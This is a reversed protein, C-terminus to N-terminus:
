ECRNVRHAFEDWQSRRSSVQLKNRNRKLTRSTKERDTDRSSIVQFSRTCVLNYANTITSVTHAEYTHKHQERKETRSVGFWTVM